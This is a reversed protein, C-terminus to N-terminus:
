AQPGGMVQRMVRALVRQAMMRKYAPSHGSNNVPRTAKAALAAAEGILGEDLDRGALFAEAEEARVPKCDVATFCIRYTRDEGSAWFAAGLIPFDISGRGALKYYGCRGAMSEKPIIIDAVIEGPRLALPSDGQGSFLKEVLCSRSGSSDVLRAEAALVILVPALDGHYCAFCSVSNKVVHCLSGGTKLCAPRANRWWRSQNLFFCRNEQCLNGGVTGMVQHHYSGVSAAAATLAPLKAELEPNTYLSKLTALAGITLRGKSFRIADLGPIRKLNVVASPTIIGHKMNVLLDTGGSLIRADPDAALMASAAQITDPERYAFNPLMM